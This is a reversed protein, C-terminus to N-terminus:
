QKRGEGRSSLRPYRSLELQGEPRVFVKIDLFELATGFPHWLLHLNIPHKVQSNSAEKWGLDRFSLGM